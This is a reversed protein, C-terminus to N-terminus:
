PPSRCGPTNDQRKTLGGTRCHVALVLRHAQVPFSDKSGHLLRANCSRWESRVNPQPQLIRTVTSSGTSHGGPKLSGTTAARREGYAVAVQLQVDM